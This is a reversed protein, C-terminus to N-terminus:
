RCVLIVVSANLLLNVAGKSCFIFVNPLLTQVTVTKPKCSASVWSYDFVDVNRVPWM